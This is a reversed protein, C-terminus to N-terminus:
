RRLSDPLAREGFDITSRRLIRGAADIVIRFRRSHLFFTVRTRGADEDEGVECRSTIAGSRM